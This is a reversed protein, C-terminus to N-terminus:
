LTRMGQHINHQQVQYAKYEAFKMFINLQAYCNFM